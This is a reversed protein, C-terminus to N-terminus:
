CISDYCVDKGLWEDISHGAAEAPGHQKWLETVSIPQARVQLFTEIDQVFDNFIDM